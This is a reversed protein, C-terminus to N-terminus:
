KVIKMTFEPALEKFELLAIRKYYDNSTEDRLTRGDENLESARPSWSYLITNRTETNLIRISTTLGIVPYVNYITSGNNAPILQGLEDYSEGQAPLFELPQAQYSSLLTIELNLVVPIETAGKTITGNINLEVTDSISSNSQFFNNINKNKNFDETLNKHRSSLFLSFKSEDKITKSSLFEAIEASVILNKENLLYNVAQINLDILECRKAIASKRVNAPKLYPASIIEEPFNLQPLCENAISLQFYTTLVIISILSIKRM